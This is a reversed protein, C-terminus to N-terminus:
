HYTKHACGGVHGAKCMIRTNRRFDADVSHAAPVHPEFATAPCNPLQDWLHIKLRHIGPARLFRSRIGRGQPLHVSGHRQVLAGGEPLPEEGEDARGVQDADAVHVGPVPRGVDRRSGLQAVGEQPHEHHRVQHRDQQLAQAGPEPDDGPHVEGLGAPRHEAAGDRCREPDQAFDGDGGAVQGLYEARRDAQLEQEAQGSSAPTSIVSAPCRREQKQQLLSAHPAHLGEDDHQDRGDANAEAISIKRELGSGRGM